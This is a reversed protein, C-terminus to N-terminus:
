KHLLGLNKKVAFIVKKAAYKFRCVRMYPLQMIKDATGDLEDLLQKTAMNNVTYFRRLAFFCVIFWHHLHKVIEAENVNYGEKEKFYGSLVNYFGKCSLLYNEVNAKSYNSQHLQIKSFQQNILIAGDQSGMLVLMAHDVLHGSGYDALKGTRILTEKKLLSSSWHVAPTLQPNLIQKIFDPAKVLEIFGQPKGKRNAGCYLSFGPYQQHLNYFFELMNEFVPDDDTVMVIYEGRAREISNNFSKVMGINEINCAYQVRDDNFSAAVVKGSGEPDNDSIVIEFDTFSQQLLVEIQGKLFDPRKFTSMCFSAWPTGTDKGKEAM